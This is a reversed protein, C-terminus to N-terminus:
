DLTEWFLKQLALGRIGRIQRGQNKVQLVPRTQLGELPGKPPIGSLEQALM